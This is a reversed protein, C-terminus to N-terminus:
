TEGALSRLDRVRADLEHQEAESLGRSHGDQSVCATLDSRGKSSLATAIADLTDASDLAIHPRAPDFIVYM